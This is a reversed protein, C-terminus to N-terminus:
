NVDYSEIRLYQARVGVARTGGLDGLNPGTAPVAGLQVQGIILNSKAANDYYDKFFSQVNEVTRPLGTTDFDPFDLKFVFNGDPTVDFKLPQVDGYGLNLDYLYNNLKLATSDRLAVKEAIVAQSDGKKVECETGCASIAYQKAFFRLAIEGNLEDFGTDPNERSWLRFYSGDVYVGRLEFSLFDEVRTIEGTNKDENIVEFRFRSGIDQGLRRGQGASLSIAIDNVVNREDGRQVIMGDSCDDENASDGCLIQFRDSDAIRQALTRGSDDKSDEGILIEGLQRNALALDLNEDEWNKEIDGVETVADQWDDVQNNYAREETTCSLGLLGCGYKEGVPVSQDTNEYLVGVQQFESGAIQKASAYEGPNAAEYDSIANALVVQKNAIVQQQEYVVGGPTQALEAENLLTSSVAGGYSSSYLGLLTSYETSYDSMQSEIATVADFPSAAGSSGCGEYGWICGQYRSHLIFDGSNQLPNSYTDAKFELLAVDDGIAMYQPASGGRVTQFVWPHLYSGINTTVEQSGYQSGEGFIYFDTWQAIIEENNSNEIGTLTATAGSTSFAFDELALGLGEGTASSMEADSMTQLEAYSAKSFVLSFFVSIFCIFIFTSSKM